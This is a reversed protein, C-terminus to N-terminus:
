GRGCSGSMISLFATIALVFQGTFGRITIIDSYKKAKLVTSTLILNSMEIGWIIKLIVALQCLSVSQCFFDASVITEYHCLHVIV